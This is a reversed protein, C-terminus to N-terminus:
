FIEFHFRPKTTMALNTHLMLLCHDSADSAMAQLHCAPFREEWDLSALARDLRVLTPDESENSWMYRRGHLHIDLLELEALANASTM